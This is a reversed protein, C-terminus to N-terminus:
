CAHLAVALQSKWEAGQHDVRCRGPPVPQRGLGPRGGEARPVQPRSPRRVAVRRLLERGPRLAAGGAPGPVPLADPGAAHARLSHPRRRARQRVAGRQGPQARRAADGAAAARGALAAAAPAGAAGRGPRPVM